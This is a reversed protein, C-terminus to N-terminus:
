RTSSSCYATETACRASARSTATRSRHDRQHRHRDGPRNSRGHRVRTRSSRRPHPARGPRPAGGGGQAHRRHAPEAAAGRRHHAGRGRLRVAVVLLDHVVRRDVPRGCGRDRRGGDVVRVRPAAGGQRLELGRARRDGADRARRRRRRPVVMRVAAGRSEAVARHHVFRVRLDRVRDHVGAQPGLIEGMKGGTIMLSAMVLTYMTIATQIGTVTTGLDKAVTAISVNMVSSDLIMVFQAAALTVLVAKAAAGQRASTATATAETM